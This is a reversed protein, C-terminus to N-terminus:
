VCMIQIPIDYKTKINHKFPQYKLWKYKNLINNKYMYIYIYTFKSLHHIFKKKSVIYLCM